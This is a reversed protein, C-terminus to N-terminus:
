SNTLQKKMIFSNSKRNTVYFNSKNYASIASLNNQRVELTITKFSSNKLSEEILCIMKSCIGYGRFNEAVWVHTIFCDNGRNSYFAILGILSKNKDRATVFNANNLLKTIYATLFSDGQKKIENSTNNFHDLLINKDVKEFQLDIFGNM